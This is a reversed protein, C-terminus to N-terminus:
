VPLFLYEPDQRKKELYCISQLGKYKTGPAQLVNLTVSPGTWLKTGSAGFSAMMFHKRAQRTGHQLPHSSAPQHPVFAPPLNLSLM